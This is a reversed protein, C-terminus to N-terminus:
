KFGFSDTLSEILRARAMMFAAERRCWEENTIIVTCVDDHDRQVADANRSRKEPDPFKVIKGM